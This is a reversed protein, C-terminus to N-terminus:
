ATAPTALDRPTPSMFLQQLEIDFGLERRVRAILQAALLSHGGLEFFDSDLTVDDRGLVECWLGIMQSQEPTMAEPEPPEARTPAVGILAQRDVKGSGTRPFADLVHIQAPIVPAPLGRAVFRRLEQSTVEGDPVLVFALLQVSTEDRQTLVEVADVLPHEAFAAAIEGPEVRVGRIKVQDDRRGVFELPAAPGARRVLDGTRLTRVGDLYPFKAATAAQQMLYGDALCPGSVLLEGVEGWPVPALAEDVIRCEVGPAPHGLPPEGREERTCLWHTVDITAEAPGYQNVLRVAPLVDLVHDRLRADLPEGGSFLLRVGAMRRAFDSERAMERLVSPVFHAVTVRESDVLELLRVPEMHTNEPAIVVQAGALLPATMEWLSFDFGRASSHLVRDQPTLPHIQQGWDLRHALAAAGVRVPRPEGTSGSTFIVYGPAPDVDGGIDKGPPTDSIVLAYAGAPVVSASGAETLLVTAGLAAMRRDILLPPLSSDLPAYTLGTDLCALLLAITDASRAGLVPVVGLPSRAAAAWRAMEDMRRILGAYTLEAGGLSLAVREPHAAAAKRIEGTIANGSGAPRQDVVRIASDM